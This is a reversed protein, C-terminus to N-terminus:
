SSVQITFTASFMAAIAIPTAGNGLSLQSIVAIFTKRSSITRLARLGNITVEGRL